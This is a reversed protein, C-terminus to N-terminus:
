APLLGVLLNSAGLRNIFLALVISPSILGDVLTLMVGNTVGLRFNRRAHLAAEPSIGEINPNRSLSVVRRIRNLHSPLDPMPPLHVRRGARRMHVLSRAVPRRIRAQIDPKSVRKTPM